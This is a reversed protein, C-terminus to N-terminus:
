ELRIAAKKIVADWKAMEAKIHDRLQEPSGSVFNFGQPALRQRVDPADLAALIERNLKEVIPRPTVSTAIEIDSPVTLPM